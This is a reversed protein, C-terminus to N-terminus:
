ADNLRYNAKIGSDPVTDPFASTSPWARLAKRYNIYKTHDPHDIISVVWDTEKLEADRWDKADEEIQSASATFTVAEYHEFNAKVFDEDANITNVVNGSSDKINYTMSM